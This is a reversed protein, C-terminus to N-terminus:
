NQYPEQDSPGSPGPFACRCVGRRACQYSGDQTLVCETAPKDCDVGSVGNPNCAGVQFGCDVMATSPTCGNVPAAPAPAPVIIPAVPQACVPCAGADQCQHTSLNCTVARQDCYGGGCNPGTQDLPIGVCDEDLYCGYGFGGGNPGSPPKVPPGPPVPPPPPPMPQNCCDDICTHEVTAGFLYAHTSPDAYCNEGRFAGQFGCTSACCDTPYLQEGGPDPGINLPDFPYTGTAKLEGNFMCGAHCGPGPTCAPPPPPPPPPPVGVICPPGGCDCPGTCSTGGANFTYSQPISADGFMDLVAIQITHTTPVADVTWTWQERTKPDFNAPNCARLTTSPDKTNLLCFDLNSFNVNSCSKFKTYLTSDNVIPLADGDTRCIFTGGPRDATAEMVISGGLYVQSTNNSIVPQRCCIRSIAPNSKADSISYNACPGPKPLGTVPDKANADTNQKAAFYMDCNEHYVAIADIYPTKTPDVWRGVASNFAVFHPMGNALNKFGYSTTFSALSQTGDTSTVTVDVRFVTGDGPMVKLTGAGTCGSSPTVKINVNGVPADLAFQPDPMSNLLQAPTLDKGSTCFSAATHYANYFSLAWTTASRLNQGLYIGTFKTPGRVLYGGVTDLQPVTDCMLNRGGNCTIDANPDSPSLRYAAANIDFKTEQPTAPLWNRVFLQNDASRLSSVISAAASTTRSKRSMLDSTSTTYSNGAPDRRVMSPIMQTVVLVAAGLILVGILGEIVLSGSQRSRSGALFCAM